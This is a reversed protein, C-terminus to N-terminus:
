AGAIRLAILLASQLRPRRGEELLGGIVVFQHVGDLRIQRRPLRMRRVPGRLWLWVPSPHQFGRTRGRGQSDHPTPSLRTGACCLLKVDLQAFQRSRTVRQGAALYVIECFCGYFRLSLEPIPSYDRLYQM